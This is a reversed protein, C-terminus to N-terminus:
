GGAADKKAKKNEARCIQLKKLLLFNWPSLM